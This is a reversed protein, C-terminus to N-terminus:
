RFYDLKPEDEYKVLKKLHKLFLKHAYSKLKIIVLSIIKIRRLLYFIYKTFRNIDQGYIQGIIIGSALIAWSIIDKNKQIADIVVVTDKKFMYKKPKEPEDKSIILLDPLYYKGSDKYKVLVYIQKLENTSFYEDSYIDRGNIIEYEKPTDNIRLDCLLPDISGGIYRINYTLNLMEGCEVELKQGTVDVIFHPNPENIDVKLSEEIDPYVENTRVITRSKYIGPEKSKTYYWYILRGKKEVNSSVIKESDLNNDMGIMFTNNANKNQFSFNNYNVYKRYKAIYLSDNNFEDNIQFESKKKNYTAIRPINKTYEELDAPTNFAKEINPIDQLNNIIYCQSINFVELGPDVLELIQISRLEKDNLQVEVRIKLINNVLFSSNDGPFIEKKIQIPAQVIVNPNAEHLTRGNEDAYKSPDTTEQIDKTGDSKKLLEQVDDPVSFSSIVPVLYLILAAIFLFISLYNNKM